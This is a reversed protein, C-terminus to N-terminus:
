RLVLLDATPGMHRVASWNSAPPARHAHTRTCCLVLALGETKPKCVGQDGMFRSGPRGLTNPCTAPSQPEPTLANAFAIHCGTCSPRVLWLTKLLSFLVPWPLPVYNSPRVACPWRILARSTPSPERACTLPTPTARSPSGTAGRCPDKIRAYTKIELIRM